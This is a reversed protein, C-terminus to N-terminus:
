VKLCGLDCLRDAPRIAGRTLKGAASGLEHVALGAVVRRGLSRGPSACCISPNLMVISSNWFIDGFYILLVISISRTNDVQSVNAPGLNLSTLRLPM